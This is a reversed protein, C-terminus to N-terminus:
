EKKISGQVTIVVDEVSVNIFLVVLFIAFSVAFSPSFINKNMNKQFMPTRIPFQPCGPCGSYLFLSDLEQQQLLLLRVHQHSVQYAWCLVTCFVLSLSALRLLKPHRAM